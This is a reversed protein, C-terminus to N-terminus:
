DTRKELEKLIERYTRVLLSHSPNGTRFKAVTLLAAVISNLEDQEM